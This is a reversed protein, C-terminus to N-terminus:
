CHNFDAIVKLKIDEVLGGVLLKNIQFLKAFM